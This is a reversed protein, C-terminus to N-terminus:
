LIEVVRMKASRSSPNKQCEQASAVIPKRTIKRVLPKRGCACVPLDPPCTCPQAYKQFCEKVMRDELSHFSIVAVRGGKKVWRPFTKLFKELHTLEQNVSIRLAQFIKTAPHIKKPHLKKPITQSVLQALQHTRELSDSALVKKIARAIAKAWREEGYEWFMRALDEESEDRLLDQATPTEEEPDIRMDLPGDNSFSFGRQPDDFHWRSVGLDLLVADVLPPKVGVQVLVEPITSYSAHRLDIRHGQLLFDHLRQRAFELMKQDRDAGIVWAVSEADAVAEILAAAHGGAGVTGDVWVM